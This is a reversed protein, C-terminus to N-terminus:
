SGRAQVYAGIRDLDETSIGLFMLGATFKRHEGRGEIAWAVVAMARIDAGQDGLNFELWLKRGKAVQAGDAGGLEGTLSMGGQSLNETHGELLPAQRLRAPLAPLAEIGVLGEADPESLERFRVQLKAPVRETKRQDRFSADDGM